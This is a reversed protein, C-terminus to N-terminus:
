SAPGNFDSGHMKLFRNWADPKNLNLLEEEEVKFYEPDLEWIFGSVSRRGSDLYRTLNKVLNRHYIGTLPQLEKGCSAIRLQSKEPTATALLALTSDKLNPIDVAVIAYYANRDKEDKMATLFGSLPGADKLEDPLQRASIDYRTSGSLLVVEDFIPSVRYIWYELLSQGNIELMAKDKGM